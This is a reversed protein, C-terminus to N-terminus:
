NRPLWKQIVEKREEETGEVLTKASAENGLVNTFASLTDEDSILKSRNYFRIEALVPLPNDYKGQALVDVRKTKVIEPPLQPLPSLVLKQDIVDFLEKVEKDVGDDQNVQRALEVKTNLLTSSTYVAKAPKAVDFLAIETENRVIGIRNLEIKVRAVVLVDLNEKKAKDLLEKETGVGVLTLGPTVPTVAGARAAAGAAGGPGGMGPRMGDGPMAGPYGGPQAGPYSGPLAGDSAGAFGANDGTPSSISGDQLAKGFNGNAVRTQFEQIIKQGFEGIYRTILQDRGAPGGAASGEFGGSYGAESGATGSVGGGREGGSGAEGGERKDGVRAVKLGQTTGIPKPDGAFKPPSTVQIGIGWRVAMVPRRLEAVWQYDSLVDAAGADTTLGWGYLYQFADRERGMQFAYKALGDLTTPKQPIAAGPVGYAAGVGAEDGPMAGPFNNPNVGPGYEFGAPPRAADADALGSDPPPALYGPGQPYTAAPDAPGDDGPMAGEREIPAEGPAGVADATAGPDGGPPPAAIEGPNMSQPAPAASNAATDSSSGGGCGVSLLTATVVVLLALVHRMVCRASHCSFSHCRFEVFSPVSFEGTNHGELGGNDLLAEVFELAPRLNLFCTFNIPDM